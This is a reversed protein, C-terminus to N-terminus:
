DLWVVELRFPGACGVWIGCPVFARIAGWCWDGVYYSCGVRVSALRAFAERAYGVQAEVIM